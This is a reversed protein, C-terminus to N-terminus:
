GGYGDVSASDPQVNRITAALPAEGSASGGDCLGAPKGQLLLLNPKPRPKVRSGFKALFFFFLRTVGLSAQPHSLHIHFTRM